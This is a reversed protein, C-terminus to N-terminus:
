DHTGGTTRNGDLISLIFPAKAGTYRDTDHPHEAALREKLAAYEARVAPDRRLRDRFELRKHWYEGGHETLHIHVTRGGDRLFTRGEVGATGFSLYGGDTLRQAVADHDEPRVGVLIDVIPKAVLGPVATSGIHEIAAPVPACLRSLRAATERFVQPWVPDPAALTLERM